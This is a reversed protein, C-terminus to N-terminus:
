KQSATKLQAAKYADSLPEPLVSRTIFHYHEPWPNDDYTIWLPLQCHPGASEPVWHKAYYECIRFVQLGVSAHTVAVALQRPRM